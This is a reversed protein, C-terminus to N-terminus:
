GFDDISAYLKSNYRISVAGTATSIEWMAAPVIGYLCPFTSSPLFFFSSFILLMSNIRMPLHCSPLLCSDSRFLM